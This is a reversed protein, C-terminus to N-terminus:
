SLPLDTQKSRKAAQFSVLGTYVESWAWLKRGTLVAVVTNITMLHWSDSEGQFFAQFLLIIVLYLKFSLSLHSKHHM